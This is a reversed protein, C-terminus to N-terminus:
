RFHRKCDNCYFKQKYIKRSKDIGEKRTDKSNCYKCLKFPIKKEKYIKLREKFHYAAHKSHSMLELNEIRNDDRIHNKHHVIENRELHRGLHKEMVLVHEFIYGDKKRARPNNLDPCKVYVYGGWNKFKGTKYNPSGIGIKKHGHVYRRKRGQSDYEDIWIDCRGCECKIKRNNIVKLKAM